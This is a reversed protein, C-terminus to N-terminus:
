LGKQLDDLGIRRCHAPVDEAVRSHESGGGAQGLANGPFPCGSDRQAVWKLAEGDKKGRM